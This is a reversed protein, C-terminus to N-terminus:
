KSNPLGKKSSLRVNDVVVHLYLATRYHFKTHCNGKVAQLLMAVLQDQRTSAWYTINVTVTGQGTTMSTVHYDVAVVRLQPKGEATLARALGTPTGLQKAIHANVKAVMAADENTMDHVPMNRPPNCQGLMVGFAHTVERALGLYVGYDVEVTTKYEHMGKPLKVTKVPKVSSEDVMPRFVGITNWKADVLRLEHTIDVLEGLDVRLASAQAGAVHVPENDKPNVVLDGDTAAASVVERLDALTLTDRGEDLMRTPLCTYTSVYVHGTSAALAKDGTLPIYTGMGLYVVPRRGGDGLLMYAHGPVHDKTTLSRLLKYSFAAEGARALRTKIRDVMEEEPSGQAPTIVYTWRGDQRSCDYDGYETYLMGDYVLGFNHGNDDHLVFAGNVVPKNFARSAFCSNMDNSM